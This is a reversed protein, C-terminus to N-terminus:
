QVSHHVRPQIDSWEGDAKVGVRRAERRYRGPAPAWPTTPNPRTPLEALIGNKMMAETMWDLTIDSLGTERLGGGIDGHVGRFWVENVRESRNMLNPRFAKRNENIAVAHYAAQVCDAISLDHFLGQQAPGIPLYAGVTDFCGLFCITPYHGNVGEEGLKRAFMRAISAGRSFGTVAVRNGPRYISALVEMGRDRIEWSGLGFVGGMLEGFWGNESENGPGSFYLSVQNHTSLGRHLKFVNTIHKDDRGNWTGDFNFILTRTM